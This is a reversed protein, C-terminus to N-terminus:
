SERETRTEDSLQTSYPSQTHLGQVGPSLVRLTISSPLVSLPHPAHKCDWSQPDQAPPSESHWLLRSQLSLGQRLLSPPLSPPLSPLFSSFNLMRAPCYLYSRPRLCDPHHGAPVQSFHTIPPVPPKFRHKRPLCFLGSLPSEMWGSICCFLTWRVQDSAFPPWFQSLRM